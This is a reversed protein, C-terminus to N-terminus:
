WLSSVGQDTVVVGDPAVELLNRFKREDSVDRSILLFGEHERHSNLRATLVVSAMFHSGNKRIRLM